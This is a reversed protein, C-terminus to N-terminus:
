YNLVRVTDRDFRVALWDSLRKGEDDGDWNVMFTLMTDVEGQITTEITTSYAFKNVTPYNLEIEKTLKDHPLVDSKMRVIETELLHIKEEKTRMQDSQANYLDGLIDVKVNHLEGILDIDKDKSQYVSLTADLKYRGLQTKWNSIMDEPIRDGITYIEITATDKDYSLKQNIIKTGDHNIVESIFLDSRTTFLSENTVNYLIFGSPVLVIMIFMGIFRKYKTEKVSDVLHIIPFKLYKVGLYTALAILVSNLIFLYAAGMFYGFNGIALGYGATCLPPMLATAIAVGPTVNSKEPRSIAVIGAIGGALAVIGDLFTPTTRGLLESTEAHLPSITFYLWSVFLGIGTMVGFAKLSSKLTNFDNTGISLGLGLIPGMLPAILMAGIVVGVANINLGISAMLISCILIWVNTGKFEIGDKIEKVSGEIDADHRINM